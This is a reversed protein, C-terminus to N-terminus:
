DDKTQLPICTCAFDVAQQKLQEAAEAQWALDGHEFCRGAAAQRSRLWERGLEGGAFDTVLGWSDQAFRGKKQYGGAM